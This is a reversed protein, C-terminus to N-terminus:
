LKNEWAKALQCFEEINLTEARRTGEIGAIELLSEPSPTLTKLSARLMKRRQGFAARTVSEMANWSLNEPGIPTPRPVIHVVTSTVKPPPTFSTPDLDMVMEAQCLWQAMVALRGYHNSNPAATIRYAVEQQFMLTM